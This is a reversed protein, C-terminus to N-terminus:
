EPGCVTQLTRYLLETGWGLAAVPVREDDGHMRLEDQLELPFPLIGYTPIGIARLAAGDTAGTSMFPLVTVGPAMAKAAAELALYLPTTVPSEPPAAEAEGVLEFTVSPEGGAEQMASLIAAVDEGPVTRVNWTATGESPIVNARFGGELKTLACGARLVADHQPVRALVALAAQQVAGDASGIERMAKALAPDAEIGALLEFYRRTTATLHLPARWAHVRAVARALAALANDPLPVSGHGSPGKASARVEHYLKETTQINVSKVRGGDLRVRGGENLALEADGLLARHDALVRDIGVDPGGEEAATALYIVDRELTARSAHLQLLAALTAALPGKDDIAGRGYLFGDKVTPVLPSTSWREDQTGVVDLHGMVIVPRRRPSGAKLRALLNARGDGVDLVHVEVGELPRLREALFDVAVRENGPPNRTDLRILGETLALADRQARARDFGPPPPADQGGAPRVLVVVLALLLARRM